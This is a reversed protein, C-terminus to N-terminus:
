ESERDKTEKNRKESMKSPKGCFKEISRVFVFSLTEPYLWLSLSLSPNVIDKGRALKKEFISIEARRDLTRTTYESSM